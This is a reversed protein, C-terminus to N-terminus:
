PPSCRPPRRSRGPLRAAPVALGDRRAGRARSRGAVRARSRRRRAWARARLRNRLAAPRAGLAARVAIERRRASMEHALLAALGTAAIAVVIVGFISLLLALFRVRAFGEALEDRLPMPEVFLRPEISAIAARVARAATRPASRAAVIVAAGSQWSWSGFFQDLPVYVAPGPPELLDENRVNAVLGVVEARRDQPGIGDITKGIPDQGPWWREAFARNVVAVTPAGRGDAPEFARGRLLPIRLADFYGPSVVGLGAPREQGRRGISTSATFPPMSLAIAAARADPLERVRALVRSLLRESEADTYAARAPVVAAIVVHDADVGSDIAELRLLSRVYLGAGAILILSAAVQAAVFGNRALGRRRGGALAPLDGWVGLASDRRFLRRAPALAVLACAALAAAATLALGAGASASTHLAPLPLEPPALHLLWAASWVALLGGAAGGAVGYLLIELLLVRLLRARPAGLALRVATDRRRREARALLLGAANLCAALLVLAAVAGVTQAIRELSRSRSFTLSVVRPWPEPIPEGFEFYTPPRGAGLRQAITELETQAQQRTVGPALRGVIGFSATSRFLIQGRFGPYIEVAQAFPAWLETPSALDLGRFGKPAVGVIQFDSGNISVERGVVDAASDFRRQWLAYSIVAVAPASPRDDFPEITRGRSARVGLVGFGNATVVAAKVQEAPVSGGALDM